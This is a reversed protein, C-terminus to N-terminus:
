LDGTGPDNVSAGDDYVNSLGTIKGNERIVKIRVYPLDEIM